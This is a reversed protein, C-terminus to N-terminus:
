YKYFYISRLEVLTNSWLCIYHGERNNLDNLYSLAYKRLVEPCLLSSQFCLDWIGGFSHYRSLLRRPATDWFVRIKMPVAKLVESRAFRKRVRWQTCSSFGIYWVHSLFCTNDVYLQMCSSSYQNSGVQHVDGKDERRWLLFQTNRFIIVNSLRTEYPAIRHMEFNGSHKGEIFIVFARGKKPANAFNRFAVILKTM